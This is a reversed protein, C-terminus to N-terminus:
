RLAPRRLEAHNLTDTFFRITDLAGVAQDFPIGQRVVTDNVAVLYTRAALDVNVTIRGVQSLPVLGM